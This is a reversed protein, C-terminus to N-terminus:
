ATCECQVSRTLTGQVRVYNGIFHIHTNTMTDTATRAGILNGCSKVNVNYRDCSSHPPHTHKITQLAISKDMAADGVRWVCWM